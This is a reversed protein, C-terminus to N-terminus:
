VKKKKQYKTIEQGTSPLSGNKPFTTLLDSVKAFYWFTLSKLRVLLSEQVIEEKLFYVVLQLHAFLIQTM